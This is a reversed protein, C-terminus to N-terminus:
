PVPCPGNQPTRTRDKITVECCWFNVIQTSKDINKPSGVLGDGFSEEFKAGCDLLLLVASVASKELLDVHGFLCGFDRKVLYTIQIHHSLPNNKNCNACVPVATYIEVPVNLSREGTVKLIV